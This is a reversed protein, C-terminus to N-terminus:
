DHDYHDMEVGTPTVTVRIHNGFADELFDDEFQNLFEAVAKVTKAADHYQAKLAKMEKKIEALSKTM